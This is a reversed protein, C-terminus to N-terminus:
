QALERARTVAQPTWPDSNFVYVRRGRSRVTLPEDLSTGLATRCEPVADAPRAGLSVYPENIRGMRFLMPVAEDIPLGDLWDDGSCWSALATMSLLTRKPLADRVRGILQRYIARESNAADFDIQVAVVQPLTATKAIAQAIQELAQEDLRSAATDPSELRTVAMLRTQPSILLRNRRPTVSLRTTDDSIVISQAFFAVGTRADLGRLDTPREWAWLMLDPLVADTASARSATTTVYSSSSLVVFLTLLVLAARRM